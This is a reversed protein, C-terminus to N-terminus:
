SEPAGYFLPLETGASAVACEERIAVDFNEPVRYMSYSWTIAGERVRYRLRCGILHAAGLRFIPIGIIFAGPVKVPKGAADNHKEVFILQGEGSSLNVASKVQHDVNISLGRSLDLLGSPTAYEAGILAAFQRLGDGANGPDAVDMIRDEIFAAFSAQAMPKENLCTWAVWQDSLPFAYRTRHKGFRPTGNAGKEHYDLVAQLVPSKADPDAFLVSHENKFRNVHAIFSEIDRVIAVGERREPTKRYQDIYKKPDIVQKGTPVILLPATIKGQEDLGSDAAMFGEAGSLREVLEIVAENEGKTDESM